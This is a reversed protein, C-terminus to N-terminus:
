QLRKNCLRKSAIGAVQCISFQLSQVTSKAVGGNISELIDKFSCSMVNILRYKFIKGLIALVILLMTLQWASKFKVELIIHVKVM